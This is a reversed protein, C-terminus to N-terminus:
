NTTVNTQLRAKSFRKSRKVYTRNTIVHERLYSVRKDITARDVDFAKNAALIFHVEDELLDRTLYSPRYRNNTFSSNSLRRQQVM